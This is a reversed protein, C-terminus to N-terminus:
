DRQGLGAAEEIIAAALRATNVLDSVKIEEQATHVKDMGTGLNVSKIGRANFFNTDSGGGSSIVSAILGSKDAARKALEIVPDDEKVYFAQYMQETNVDARAGFERCAEAICAEMDRAQRNLKEDSLSRAEGEIEVRDCVINTAQGGTIVGINATTEHDIRLLKMRDIARAAAQIASIGEEPNVGAHAAKGHIVAGIKVQAPGRNIITGPSGGSDFVYGTVARILNRNLYRSGLLGIEEGFTFLIELDGHPIREERIHRVAELIAAIGSKDDAGLVTDGRSAIVGEKILPEIHEGPTVTDMHAALLLPMSGEVNGRMRGVLNGTDTGAAKAAEEDVVVELGLEEMKRQLYQAFGKEQNSLSDIKVMAVFENVLREEKIM